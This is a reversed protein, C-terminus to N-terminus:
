VEATREFRALVPSGLLLKLGLAGSLGELAASLSHLFGSGSTTEGGAYGGDDFQWQLKATAPNIVGNKGESFAQAVGTLKIRRGNLMMTGVPAEHWQTFTQAQGKIFRELRDKFVKDL